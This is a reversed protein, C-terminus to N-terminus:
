KVQRRCESKSGSLKKIPVSQDVHVFLECLPSIDNQVVTSFVAHASLAM